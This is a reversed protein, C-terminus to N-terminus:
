SLRYVIDGPKIMHLRERAAKELSFEADECWREIRNKFLQDRQEFHKLHVALNAVTEVLKRDAALGWPSIIYAATLIVVEGAVIYAIIPMKM